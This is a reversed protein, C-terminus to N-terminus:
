KTLNTLWGLKRFYYLMIIVAGVSFGLTVFLPMFEILNFSYNTSGPININM